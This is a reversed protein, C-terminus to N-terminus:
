GLFVRAGHASKYRIRLGTRSATSTTWSESLRMWRRRVPIKEAPLNRFPVARVFRSPPTFNGPLGFMSSGGGSLSFDIEEIRKAPLATASLNLYDRLNTMHWNYTPANTVYGLPADFIQLSNKAFESVVAKESPETCLLPIPPQIGISEETVAVVDLKAMSAKVEAIMSCITLLYQCVDLSAISSAQRQPNVDPYDAVKPHNFVNVALGRENMGDLLSNKGLYQSVFPKTLSTGVTSTAVVATDRIKEDQRGNGSM